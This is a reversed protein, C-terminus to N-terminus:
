CHQHQAWGNNKELGELTRGFYAKNCSPISCPIRYIGSDKLASDHVTGKKNMVARGISDRATFILKYNSAHVFRNVVSFQKEFPLLIVKARSPTCM